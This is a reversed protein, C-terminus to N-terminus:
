NQWALGTRLTRGAGTNEGWVTYAFSTNLALKKWVKVFLGPQLDIQSQGPVNGSLLLAPNQADAKSAFSHFGRIAFTPLISQLWASNKLVPIEYGTDAAWHFDDKFGTGGNLDRFRYGVSGTVYVPLKEFSRSVHLRGMLDYEGDGLPITQPPFTGVGNSKASEDGTPIGATVEVASVIAPLNIWNYKLGVMMDSFGNVKYTGSPIEQEAALIYSANMQLQLDWGLGYEVYFSLDRQRYTSNPQGLFINGPQISIVNDVRDGTATFVEKAQYFGVNTEAYFGHRPHVWGNAFASEMWFISLALFYNLILRSNM